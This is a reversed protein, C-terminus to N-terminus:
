LRDSVIGIQLGSTPGPGTGEAGVGRPWGTTSLTFQV